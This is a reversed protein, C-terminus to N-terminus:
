EEAVQGNWRRYGEYDLGLSDMVKGVIQGTADEITEPRNYYSLMPPLIIAGMRSLELMNKLHITSLPCERAVLILRRREKLTVDAARLILNDSYGCAIGALTKMSCPIIVCAQTRFSGSAIAAGIDRNDYVCDALSDLEELTFDTEQVVTRKAGESYVLHTEVEDIKKLEGLLAAALPAGSAGSIGVIIRRDM